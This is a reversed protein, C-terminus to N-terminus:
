KQLAMVVADNIDYSEVAINGRTNLPLTDIYEQGLKKRLMELVFEKSNKYFKNKAQGFLVKRATLVNYRKIILNKKYLHYSLISNFAILKNISFASSKGIAFKMLFDEIHVKKIKWGDVIRDIEKLAVDVRNYFEGELKIANKDLINKEDYVCYGICTTSIDLGLIM